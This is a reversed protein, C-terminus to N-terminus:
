NRNIKECGVLIQPGLHTFPFFPLNYVVRILLRRFLRSEVYVPSNLVAARQTTFHLTRFGLRGLHRALVNSWIHTVDFNGQNDELSGARQQFTSHVTSEATRRTFLRLLAHATNLELRGSNGTRIVLRGGPKLVRALERVALPYDVVHELVSHCLIFDFVSDEFPLSKLSAEKWTLQGPPYGSSACRAMNLAVGSCDVGTM